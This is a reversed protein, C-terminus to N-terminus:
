RGMRGFKEYPLLFLMDHILYYADLISGVRTILAQRMISNEVFNKVRLQRFLLFRHAAQGIFGFDKDQSTSEGSGQDEVEAGEVQKAFWFGQAPQLGLQSGCDRDTVFGVRNGGQLM